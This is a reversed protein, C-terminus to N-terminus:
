VCFSARFLLDMKSWWLVSHKHCAPFKVLTHCDSPTYRGKESGGEVCVGGRNWTQSVVDERGERQDGVDVLQARHVRRRAPHLREVPHAHEGHGPDDESVGEGDCGEEDTLAGGLNHAVLQTKPVALDREQLLFFIRWFNADRVPRQDSCLKPLANGCQVPNRLPKLVSLSCNQQRANWFLLADTNKGLVPM